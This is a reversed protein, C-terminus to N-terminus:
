SRKLSSADTILTSNMANSYAIDISPAQSKGGRLSDRLIEGSRESLERIRAYPIEDAGLLLEQVRRELFSEGNRNQPIHWYGGLFELLKKSNLLDEMSLTRDTKSDSTAVKRILGDRMLHSMLIIHLGYGEAVRKLKEIYKETIWREGHPEIIIPKGSIGLSLVFDPTYSFSKGPVALHLSNHLVKITDIGEHERRQNEKVLAAKVMGEYLSASVGDRAFRGSLHIETRQISNKVAM